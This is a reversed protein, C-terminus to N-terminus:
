RSGSPSRQRLERRRLWELVALGILVQSELRLMDWGYGNAWSMAWLAVVIGHSIGWIPLRYRRMAVALVRSLPPIQPPGTASREM